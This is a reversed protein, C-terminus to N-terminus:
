AEARYLFTVIQARTCPADPSFTTASTGGTVNNEVAWNVAAGYYSGAPVDSFKASNDAAKGMVRYLFVVAQARTCVADPSFRDEGTGATVGNEVAWAVAKAYYSDSAVDVFNVAGKPEPSGSARWLFTVIQARTCTGDPSFETTSTGSTIQKKVAWVVADFYYDNKQVDKFSLTNESQEPTTQSPKSGSSSGSGTHSGGSTSNKVPTLEYAAMTGSVECAALLMPSGTKSDAASVFCLGEPSVDGMINDAFDRSNIYNVFKAGAPDSIDYVMVGGIRELAIFAYTKGNVTGTTVSEPEPGKKGSRDDMETEDNSCNFYDPIQKDTIEEFDSGSDFVLTLGDAGVEYLSFSRGGFIYDETTDLGDWMDANFWTVKKDLKVNGTPSTKGKTENDLGDWDARSDGENATLLYTKGGITTVSIGDPM